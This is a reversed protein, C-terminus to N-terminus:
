WRAAARMAARRRSAAATCWSTPRGRRRRGRCKPRGAARVPRPVSVGEGTAGAADASIADFEVDGEFVRVGLAVGRDIGGVVGLVVGIARADDAADDAWIRM